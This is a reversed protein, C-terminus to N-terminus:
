MLRAAAAVKVLQLGGRFMSFGILAAVFAETPQRSNLYGFSYLFAYLGCGMLGWGVWERVLWGLFRTNRWFRSM